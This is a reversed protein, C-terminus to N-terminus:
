LSYVAPVAMQYFWLLKEEFDIIHESASGNKGIVFGQCKGQVAPVICFHFGLVNIGGDGM